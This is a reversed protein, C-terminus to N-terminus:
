ASQAAPSRGRVLEAMTAVSRFNAPSVDSADFAVAYREEIHLILDTLLLSDLLGADILDTDPEVRAHDAGRSRVLALLDAELHHNDPTM